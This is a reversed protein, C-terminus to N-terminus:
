QRGLLRSIDVLRLQKLFAVHKQHSLAKTFGDATMNQTSTWDVKLRGEEVEQRLWHQHVDVHKLKTVLKPAEKVILRVTQQNDCMIKTEEDLDLDLNKFFRQWWMTQAACHSLSLLEAETTSTSVTKQKSCRWDIAGGFLTFLYGETSKRDDNDAFSADASVNFFAGGDDFGYELALTKTCRLYSIVRDAAAHHEPGPNRLFEALKQCARAIDPRTVIAAYNLSGVKKQFAYIEQDTATGAYPELSTTSMPSRVTKQDSLNFSDVIKQIYSDQCLWLKRAQRDRMVRVGLFWKLEGMEKFDYCMLLRKRLNEAEARHEKFSVICVDDVYFFVYAFECVFLCQAEPVRKLGIRELTASFDNYWLLPSRRLGYLARQLKLCNGPLEFGDPCKIYVEEDIESNTFASVADMQYIDLDFYAATALLARVVRSALTAAYVEQEHNYKQLDGRVVLRAKYKELIGDTNYKYTFVWRVPIIDKWDVRHKAVPVFTDRSVLDAYEVAAAAKFGDAHPHDHLEDWGNPPAPLDSRHFRPKKYERADLFATMFSAHPDPNKLAAVYCEHRTPTAAPTPLTANNEPTADRDPEPQNPETSSLMQESASVEIMPVEFDEVEGYATSELEEHDLEAKEWLTMHSLLTSIRDIDQIYGFDPEYFSAEDFVVDRTAIVRSLVPIWIRFINSSEYGVLYGIHARPDLRDLKAVGKKHVYAKCGYSKLYHIPIRVDDGKRHSLLAGLPTQWDLTRTPSRNILWAAAMFIEPWLHQPLNSAARLARSRQTLTRGSREAAGNQEPTYPASNEVTFGEAAVWRYFANGLGAENDARWLRVHYQWRRLVLAVFHKATELISEQKKNNICYVHNMRTNDDLFHIIWKEGEGGENMQILDFHVKEYPTESRPTPIRSIIRQSNSLRCTQCVATENSLLNEIEAGETGYKLHRLAESSLHGLREHWVLLSAKAPKRATSSSTVFATERESNVANFELVSQGFFHFVDCIVHGDRIIKNKKHDWFANQAEVLNYSVLNTMFGPVYAVNSLKIATREGEAMCRLIVTGRGEIKSVQSGSRVQELKTCPKYDTMRTKDNTVHLTSGTDLIWSYKLPYVGESTDFTTNFAANFTSESVSSSADAAAHAQNRPTASQKGADSKKVAITLGRKQAIADIARRIKFIESKEAVQEEIRADSKWNDKRNELFIYPCDQFPHKADCICFSRDRNGSRGRGSGGGEQRGRDQRGDQTKGQLTAAFAAEKNKGKTKDGDEAAFAGHAGRPKVVQTNHRFIERVKSSVALFDNALAPNMYVVVKIAEVSSENLPMVANFLDEIARRPSIETFRADVCKQYVAEWKAFWMEYDARNRPAKQLSQWERILFMDRVADTPQLAAKLKRLMQYANVCGELYIKYNVGVTKRIDQTFSLLRSEQKGYETERRKFMAQERLWEEQIEIKLAEEEGDPSSSRLQRASHHEATVRKRLQSYSPYEPETLDVWKEPDITPDVYSWIKEQKAADRM